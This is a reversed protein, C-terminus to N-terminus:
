YIDRYDISSGVHVDEMGIDYKNKNEVFQTERLSYHNPAARVSLCLVEM